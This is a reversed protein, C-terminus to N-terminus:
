SDQKMKFGESPFLMSQDRERKFGSISAAVSVAVAVLPSALAAAFM